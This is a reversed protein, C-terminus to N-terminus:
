RAVYINSKVINDSRPIIQLNEHVHLGSVLEGCLPVVHDVDHPIGTNRSVRKAMQYIEAIKVMDAWKPLRKMRSVKVRQNRGRARKKADIASVKDPHNKRWIKTRTAAACKAELSLGNERRLRSTYSISCVKCINSVGLKYGKKPYFEGLPKQENCVRCIKM